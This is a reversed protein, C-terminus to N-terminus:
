KLGEENFSKCIEVLINDLGFAKRVKMKRIAEKVEEKTILHFSRSNQQEEWASLKTHQPIDFRERNFLKYFYSQWREQLKTDEILVKGDEDKICRV